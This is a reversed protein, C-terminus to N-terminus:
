ITAGNEDQNDRRVYYGRWGILYRSLGKVIQAVSAGRTRRTMERVRGKFRAM